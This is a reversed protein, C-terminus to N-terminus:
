AWFDLIILQDRYDHLTVTDKGKPHNVVPLPMHWGAEPIPDGIRLGGLPISLAPEDNSGEQELLITFPSTTTPSSQITQTQYGICSVQIVGEKLSTYLAFKGDADTQTDPTKPLAGGRGTVKISAGQLFQGTE